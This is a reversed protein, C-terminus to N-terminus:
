PVDREFALELIAAYRGAGEKWQAFTVPIGAPKKTVIEFRKDDVGLALACGDLAHKWAAVLNDDDLTGPAVRSVHIRVPERNEDGLALEVAERVQERVRRVQAMKAFSAARTTGLGANVNKLKLGELRVVISPM